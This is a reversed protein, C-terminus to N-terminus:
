AARRPSRKSRTKRGNPQILKRRVEPEVFEVAPSDGLIALVADNSQAPVNAVFLSALEVDSEDPFLPEVRGRRRAVEELVAQRDTNRANEHFKIQYKM